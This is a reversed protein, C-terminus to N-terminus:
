RMAHEPEASDRDASRFEISFRTATRGIFGTSRLNTLDIRGSLLAPWWQMEPNPVHQLSAPSEGISQLAKQFDQSDESSFEFACWEVEPSDEHAEYINRSSAPLFEPIWGRTIAGDKDAHALSAYPCASRSTSCRALLAIVGFPMMELPDPKRLRM